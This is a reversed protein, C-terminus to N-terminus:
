QLVVPPPPLNHWDKGDYRVTARPRDKFDLFCIPTETKDPDIIDDTQIIEKTWFIGVKKIPTLTSTLGPNNPTSSYMPAYREALEDYIEVVISSHIWNNLIKFPSGQKISGEPGEHGSDL